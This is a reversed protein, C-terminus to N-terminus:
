RAALSKLARDRLEEPARLAIKNRSALGEAIIPLVETKVAERMVADLVKPMTGLYQSVLGPSVDGAKAIMERTVRHMGHKACLDVACKLLAAKRVKPDLRLRVTAM